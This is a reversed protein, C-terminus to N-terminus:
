DLRYVLVVFPCVYSHIQFTKFHEGYFHEGYFHEGYFHDGYFYESKLNLLFIMKLHRNTWRKSLRLLRHMPTAFPRAKKLLMFM